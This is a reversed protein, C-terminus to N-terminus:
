KNSGTLQPKGFNEGSYPVLDPLDLLVANANMAKLAQEDSLMQLDVELVSDTGPIAIRQIGDGVVAVDVSGTNEASM